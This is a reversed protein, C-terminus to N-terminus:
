KCVHQAASFGEAIGQSNCDAIADATQVMLESLDSAKQVLRPNTCLWAPSIYLMATQLRVVQHYSKKSDM